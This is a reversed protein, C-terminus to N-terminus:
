ILEFYRKIEWDTVAEKWLKLEHRKTAVYHDVFDEGLVKRAISDKADMVNTAEELSKPLFPGPYESINKYNGISEYPNTLKNEIGYHGCALIAALVLTANCDAGPTRIEIRTSKESCSPPTILRVSALRNDEGWCVRVPAWFSENLRKYSNVTPAMIAMISSLGEMLGAVFWEMTQSYNKDSNSGAFANSKDKKSVLSLHMHGSCGPLDPYPKAMFTPMVEHKLGIHKVMTKFLVGRDGMEVTPCFELASEYVGPGTETHHGELPIGAQGCIEFIDTFYDKNAQTRLLSYGFMGPTLAEPKSPHESLSKPTASFNYYEFEAGSYPTYGLADLKNCITKLLGRPCIPLREEESVYFDV